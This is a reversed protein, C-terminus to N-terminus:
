PEPTQPPASASPAASNSPVASDSSVTSNATTATNASAPNKPMVYFFDRLAGKRIFENESFEFGSALAIANRQGSEPNKQFTVFKPYSYNIDLQAVTVAGAHQMGLAIAPATTHNTIGVFLVQNDASIGIASRRIVTEGDLTAGWKKVRGEKLFSNLQGNEYMCNPTQRWWVMQAETDKLLPWSAVRMTDDKYRAVTCVTPQPGVILVDGLKMGYNGHQTMFGGNFAALVEAEHQAPIRGPREMAKAAEETAEPERRGPVLEIQVARLDLAVVFLEAWSRQKDPHLLTKLMRIPSGPHDVDPIPLWEGDGPAAWHKHVSGVAELHFPALGEVKSPAPAITSTSPDASPAAAPASSPAPPVSWYAKPKEGKRWYRMVRDQIGYAFDELNAVNEKGIVARLSNAVLPGLWEIRNVAIWLALVLVPTTLAIALMVRRLKRRPTPQRAAVAASETLEPAAMM